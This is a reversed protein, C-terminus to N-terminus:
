IGDAAAVVDGLIVGNDDFCGNRGIDLVPRRSVGVVKAPSDAVVDVYGIRSVGERDRFGSYVRIRNGNLRMPTPTLASNAIWGEVGHESTRFILGEKEWRFM